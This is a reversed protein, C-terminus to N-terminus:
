NCNSCISREVKDDKKEIRRDLGTTGSGQPLGPHPVTKGTATLNRENILRDAKPEPGPGFPDPSGGQALAAPIVTWVALALSIPLPKLM